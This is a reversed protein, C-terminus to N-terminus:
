EDYGKGIGIYIGFKILIISISIKHPFRDLNIGLGLGPIKWFRFRDGSGM